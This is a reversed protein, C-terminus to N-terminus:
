IYDLHNVIEMILLKAKNDKEYCESQMQKVLYLKAKRFHVATLFNNEGKMKNKYSKWIEIVKYVKAYVRSIHKFSKFRKWNVEGAENQNIETNSFGEFDIPEDDRQVQASHQLTTIENLLFEKETGTAVKAAKSLEILNPNKNESIIIDKEEKMTEEPMLNYTPNQIPWQDRSKSLFGPGNWWCKNM